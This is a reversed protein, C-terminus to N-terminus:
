EESIVEFTFGNKCLDSILSTNKFAAGPPFVGGTNPMKSNDKLITTASLLLAVCTAGYGPNTGTVKTIMKKNIPTEYKDTPEALTEKWGEGAFVMEFQTNEM